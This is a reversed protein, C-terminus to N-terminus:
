AGMYAILNLAIFSQSCEEDDLSRENRRALIKEGKAEERMEAVYIRNKKM